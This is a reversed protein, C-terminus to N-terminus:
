IHILSLHPVLRRYPWWIWALLGWRKLARSQVDLDPSLWLGGVLFSVATISGISWGLWWSTIMGIPICFAATARDHDRGCAM